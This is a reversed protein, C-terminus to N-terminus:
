KYRSNKLSFLEFDVSNQIENLNELSDKPIKEFFRSIGMTELKYKQQENLKYRINFASTALVKNTYNFTLIKEMLDLANTVKESEKLADIVFIFNTSVHKETNVTSIKKLEKLIDSFFDDFLAFNDYVMFLKGPTIAKCTIYKKRMKSVIKAYEAAALEKLREKGDTINPDTMPKLDLNLLIAFKTYQMTKNKFIEKLNENVLKEELKKEAIVNLRHQEEMKEVVSAFYNFVFYFIQFIAAAVLPIMDITETGYPIELRVFNKLLDVPIGFVPQLYKIFTFNLLCLFWYLVYLVAAATCLVKVTSIFDYLKTYKKYIL